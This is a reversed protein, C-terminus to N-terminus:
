VPIYRELFRVPGYWRKGDYLFRVLICPSSDPLGTEMRRETTAKLLQFVPLRMMSAKIVSGSIGQLSPRKQEPGVPLSFARIGLERKEEVPQEGMRVKILSSFCEGVLQSLDFNRGTLTWHRHRFDNDLRM